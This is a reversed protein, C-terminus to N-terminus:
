EVWAHLMVFSGRNAHLGKLRIRYDPNVIRLFGSMEDAQEARHYTTIAIKPTFARITDVGGRLVDLESGELDGKLYTVKINNKYFLNDLTEIKVSTGDKKSLLLSSSIGARSLKGEGERDALACAVVTVNDIRSFTLRLAEVFRPLPEIAYVKHCRTAVLLSFLGEAAGCDVVVDGESVKTPQFEYYHWDDGFFIEAIVQYLSYLPMEMPYYLPYDLDKFVVKLFSDHQKIQKIVSRAKTTYSRDFTKQLLEKLSIGNRKGSVWYKVIELRARARKLEDFSYMVLPPLASNIHRKEMVM